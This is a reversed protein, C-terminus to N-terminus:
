DDHFNWTIFSLVFIGPTEEAGVEPARSREPLVKM